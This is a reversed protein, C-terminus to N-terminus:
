CLSKLMINFDMNYSNNMQIARANQALSQYVKKTFFLTTFIKVQLDM